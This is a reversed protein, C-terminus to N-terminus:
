VGATLRAILTGRDAFHRKHAAAASPHLSWSKHFFAVRQELRAM